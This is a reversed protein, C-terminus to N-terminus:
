ASLAQIAAAGIEDTTATHCHRRPEEVQWAPRSILQAYQPMQRMFPSQYPGKSSQRKILYYVAPNAVVSARPHLSQYTQGAFVAALMIDRSVTKGDISRKLTSNILKDLLPVVLCIGQKVSEKKTRLRNNAPDAEIPSLFAREDKFKRMKEQMHEAPDKGILQAGIHAELQRYDSTLRLGTIVHGPKLITRGVDSIPVEQWKLTGYAQKLLPFAEAM